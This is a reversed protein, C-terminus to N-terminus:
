MLLFGALMAAGIWATLDEEDHGHGHGDKRADKTARFLASVGEPIVVSLAAGPLIGCSLLSIAELKSESLPAYLPLFSAVLTSVLVAGSLGILHALGM